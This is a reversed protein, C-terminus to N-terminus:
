ILQVILGNCRDHLVVQCALRSDLEVGHAKDLAIEEQELPPDLQDANPIIVHCGGCLGNGECYSNMHINNREAVQLITDGINFDAKIQQKDKTIFIIHM